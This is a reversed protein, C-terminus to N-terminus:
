TQLWVKDGIYHMYIQITIFQFDLITKQLSVLMLNKKKVLYFFLFGNSPNQYQNQYPHPILLNPQYKKSWKQSYLYLLISLPAIYFPVLFLPQVKKPFPIGPPPTPNCSILPKGGRVM